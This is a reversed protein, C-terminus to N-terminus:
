SPFFFLNSDLIYIHFMVSPLTHSPDILLVTLGCNRAPWRPAEYYSCFVDSLQFLLHLQEDRWFLLFSCTKTEEKGMNDLMTYM